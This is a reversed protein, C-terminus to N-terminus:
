HVLGSFTGKGWRSPDLTGNHTRDLTPHLVNYAIYFIDYAVGLVHAKEPGGPPLQLGLIFKSFAQLEDWVMHYFM